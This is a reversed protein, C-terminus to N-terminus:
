ASQTTKSVTVNSVEKVRYKRIYKADKAKRSVLAGSIGLHEGAKTSTGYKYYAAAAIAATVPRPRNDLYGYEALARYVDVWPLGNKRIIKKRGEFQRVLEELNNSYKEYAVALEDEPVVSKIRKKNGIDIGSNLLHKRASSRNLGVMDAAKRVSRTEEYAAILEPSALKRTALPRMNVGNELLIAKALWTTTNCAKATKELGLGSQYTDIIKQVDVRKRNTLHGPTDIGAKVLHKKVGTWTVGFHAATAHVDKLEMFKAVVEETKLHELAKITDYRKMLEVVQDDFEFHSMTFTIGSTTAIRPTGSGIGGKAGVNKQRDAVHRGLERVFNIREVNAVFDLVTVEDKGPHRRLGRGLQQEFITKSSTSRLFVVLRADPIDIGENFMDVTCIVQLKGNKFHKMAQERKDTNLDSHYVEGGLLEAMETASSINPCFVITKAKDLGIDHRRKLVESSIVENRSRISFLEKIDKLTKAEFKKDMAEKIAKDFVIHYDVPSLWGDAIGESLSKTFVPHGFYNFISRGDAREPTATLALSFEPTFHKRVASFTEAEIHHAEDFIIYSYYDAPLTSLKRHLGQFTAYTVQVDKVTGRFIHTTFYPNVFLFTNKAQSSIDNM